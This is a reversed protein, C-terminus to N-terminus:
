SNNTVFDCFDLSHLLCIQYPLDDNLVLDMFSCGQLVVCTQKPANSSNQVIVGIPNPGEQCPSCQIICSEGPSNHNEVTDCFYIIVSHGSGIAFTPGDNVYDVLDTISYSPRSFHIMQANQNM